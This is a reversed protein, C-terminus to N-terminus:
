SSSFFFGAGLFPTPWLTVSPHPSSPYQLTSTSIQYTSRSCSTARLVCSFIICRAMSLSFHCTTVWKAFPLNKWLHLVRVIGGVRRAELSINISSERTLALEAFVLALFIGSPVFWMRPVGCQFGLVSPLSPLVVRYKEANKGFRRSAGIQRVIHNINCM